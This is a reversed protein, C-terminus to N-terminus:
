SKPKIPWAHKKMLEHAKRIMEPDTATLIKLPDGCRKCSWDGKHGFLKCLIKM